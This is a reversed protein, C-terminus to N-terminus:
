HGHEAHRDSVDAPDESGEQLIQDHGLEVTPGVTGPPTLLPEQGRRLLVLDPQMSTRCSTVIASAAACCCTSREVMMRIRVTAFSPASAASAADL